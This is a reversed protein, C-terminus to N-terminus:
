NHPLTRFGFDDSFVPFINIIRGQFRFMVNNIDNYPRSYGSAYQLASLCNILETYESIKPDLKLYLDIDRLPRDFNLGLITLAYSGTICFNHPKVGYEKLMNVIGDIVKYVETTKEKDTEM